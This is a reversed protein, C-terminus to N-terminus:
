FLVFMYQGIDHSFDSINLKYYYLLEVTTTATTTTTTTVTVTVTATFNFTVNFGEILVRGQSLPM